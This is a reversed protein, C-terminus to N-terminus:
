PNASIIYPEKRIIGQSRCCPVKMWPISYTAPTISNDIPHSKTGSAINEPATKKAEM